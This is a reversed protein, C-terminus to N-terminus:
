QSVTIALSGDSLALPVSRDSLAEFASVRFTVPGAQIAAMIADYRLSDSYVDSHVIVRNITANLSSIPQAVGGQILEISVATTGGIRGSGTSWYADTSTFTLDLLAPNAVNSFDHTRDSEPSLTFGTISPYILTVSEQTDTPPTVGGELSFASTSFASTSFAASSFAPM